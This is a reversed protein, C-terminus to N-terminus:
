CRRLPLRTASWTHTAHGRRHGSGDISWCWGTAAPWCRPAPPSWCRAADPGTARCVPRRDSGRDGRRDRHDPRAAGAGRPEAALARALAVRQRQGGSLTRGREGIETDLGDPMSDRVEDAASAALAPGARSTSGDTRMNDALTGEFLAADHRAVLLARRASTWRSPRLDTGDLAARATPNPRVAWSTSCAQRVPQPRHDGAGLHEGPLWTSRSATTGSRCSGKSRGPLVTTM